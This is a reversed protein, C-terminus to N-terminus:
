STPALKVAWMQRVQDFEAALPPDGDALAKAEDETLDDKDLWMTASESGKLMAALDKNTSSSSPNTSASVVTGTASSSTNPPKETM